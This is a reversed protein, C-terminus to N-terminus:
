VFLTSKLCSEHSGQSSKSLQLGQATAWYRVPQWLCPGRHASRVDPGRGLLTAPVQRCRRFHAQPTAMCWGSFAPLDSLGMWTFFCYFTLGLHWTPCSAPTPGWPCLGINPPQRWEEVWKVGQIAWSERRRPPHKAWPQHCHPASGHLWPRASFCTHLTWLRRGPGLQQGFRQQSSSQRESSWVGGWHGNVNLQVREHGSSQERCGWIWGGWFNESGFWLFLVRSTGQCVCRRYAFKILWLIPKDHSWIDCQFKKITRLIHPYIPDAEKLASTTIKLFHPM